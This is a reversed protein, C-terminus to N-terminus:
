EGLIDTALEPHGLLARVPSERLHEQETPGWPHDPAWLHSGFNSSSSGPRAIPYTAAFVASMTRRLRSRPARSARIRADEPAVDDMPVEADALGPRPRVDGHRAQRRIGARVRRPRPPVGRTRSRGVRDRHQLRLRPRLRTSPGQRVGPLRDSTAAARMGLKLVWTSTAKLSASAFSDAFAEMELEEGHRRRAARRREDAARVGPERLMSRGRPELVVGLWASGSTRAFSRRSPGRDSTGTVYFIFRNAWYDTPSPEIKLANGILEVYRSSMGERGAGRRTFSPEYLAERLLAAPTCRGPRPEAAFEDPRPLGPPSALWGAELLFHEMLTAWAETRVSASASAEVPLDPNVHAYHEYPRRTSSRACDDARGDAPDCCSAAPCRSRPASRARARRRGSSSTSSSTRHSRLRHRSRRALGRAGADDERGPVSTGAPRGFVRAVDWREADNLGVGARLRFM